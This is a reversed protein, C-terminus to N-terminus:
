EPKKQISSVIAKLQETKKMLLQHKQLLEQYNQEAQEARQKFEQLQQKLTANEAALVDEISEEKKPASRIKIEFKETPKVLESSIGTETKIESDFGIHTIDGKLVQVSFKYSSLLFAGAESLCQQDSGIIVPQEKDLQAVYNRLSLLPVNIARDLHGKEYDAASRVDILVDGCELLIQMELPDVYKLAQEKILTVFSHKNIRLLSLPTLATVTHCTLHPAILAEAGFSDWMKLKTATITQEWNSDKYSQLCEGSKVLYFYEGSQGQTTIIEGEQYEIEELQENIKALQAPALSRLVPIMLMLSMWNHTAGTNTVEKVGDTAAETKKLKEKDPTTIYISNLRFFQV